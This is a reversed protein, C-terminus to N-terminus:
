NHKIFDKTDYAAGYDTGLVATNIPLYGHDYDTELIPNGDVTENNETYPKVVSSTNVPTWVQNAGAGLRYFRNDTMRYLTDDATGSYLWWMKSTAFTTGSYDVFCLNGEILCSALNGSRIIANTNYINLLTSKRVVVSLKPTNCSADNGIFALSGPALEDAYVVTNNIYIRESDKNRSKNGNYVLHPSKGGKSLMRVVCNDFMIESFYGNTSNGTYILYFNTASIQMASYDLFCNVFRLQGCTVDSTNRAFGYQSGTAKSTLKLNFFTWGEAKNQRLEIIKLNPQKGAGGYRGAIIKDDGGSIDKTTSSGHDLDITIGNPDNIFIVGTLTKLKDYTVEGPELLTAEGFIEKNVTLGDVTIIDEGNNYTEYYDIVGDPLHGPKVEGDALDAEIASLLVSHNSGADPFTFVFAVSAYKDLGDFQVYGGDRMEGAFYGFDRILDEAGQDLSTVVASMSMSCYTEEHAYLRVSKYHKGKITPLTVTANHSLKLAPSLGFDSQRAMCNSFNWVNEDGSTAKLKSPLTYGLTSFDQIYCCATKKEVDEPISVPLVAETGGLVIDSAVAATFSYSLTDTNVKITAETGQPIRSPLSNFHIDYTGGAAALPAEFIATLESSSALKESGCISAGDASCEVYFIGALPEDLKGFSVSVARLSEGKLVGSADSLRLDFKSTLNTPGSLHIADNRAVNLATAISYDYNPDAGGASPHQLPFMRLMVKTTGGIVGSSASSHAPSVIYYNYAKACDESSHSFEGEGDMLTVSVPDGVGRLYQDAGLTGVYPSCYVSVPGSLEGSVIKKQLDSTLDESIKDSCAAALALVPILLYKKM